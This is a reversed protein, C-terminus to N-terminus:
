GGPPTVDIHFWWWDVGQRGDRLVYYLTAREGPPTDGEDDQEGRVLTWSNLSLPDDSTDNLLEGWTTFWRGDYAEQDEQFENNNQQIFYTQLESRPATTTVDLRHGATVSIVEGRAPMFMGVSNDNEDFEEVAFTAIRPNDDPDPPPDPLDGGFGGLDPLGLEAALELLVTDPGVPVRQVVYICDGDFNADGRLLREYCRQTDGGDPDHAVMTVEIDGGLLYAVDFPVVFEPQSPTGGTLECPSVAEPFEGSAPDFETPDVIPCAPIDAIDLPLLSTLCSGLGEVAAICAIWRPEMQTAIDEQSLKDEEDVILPVLRVQELPLAEVRVPDDDSASPDDVEIRIALPRTSAIREELPLGMGCGLAASAFVLLTPVSTRTPGQM